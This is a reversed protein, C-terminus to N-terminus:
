KDYNKSYAACACDINNFFDCCYDCKGFFFNIVNACYLDNKFIPFNSGQDYFEVLCSNLINKRLFLAAGTPALPDVTGSMILTPAIIKSVECRVDSTQLIEIYIRYQPLACIYQKELLKVM